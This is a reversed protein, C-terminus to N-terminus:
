LCGCALLKGFRLTAASGHFDLHLRNEKRFIARRSGPGTAQDNTVSKHSIETVPLNEDRCGDSGILFSSPDTGAQGVRSAAM